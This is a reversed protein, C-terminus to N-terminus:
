ARGGDEPAVAAAKPVHEVVSLVETDAYSGNAMIEQLRKAAHKPDRARVHTVRVKVVLDYLREKRPAM